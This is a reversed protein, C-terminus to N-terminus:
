FCENIIQENMFLCAPSRQYVEKGNPTRCSVSCARINAEYTGLVVGEPLTRRAPM